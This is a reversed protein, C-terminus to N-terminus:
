PKRGLRLMWGTTLEWGVGPNSSTEEISSAQYRLTSQLFFRHREALRYQIGAAGQLALNVPNVADNKEQFTKENGEIRENVGTTLYYNTSIGAEAYPTWTKEAFRYRVLLPIELFLHNVSLRENPLSPAYGAPTFESPWMLDTEQTYGTVYLRLGTKIQWHASVAQIVEIGFLPNLRAQRGSWPFIFATNPYLQVGKFEYATHIIGGSIALDTKQASLLTPSFLLVFLTATLCTHFYSSRIFAHQNLSTTQPM